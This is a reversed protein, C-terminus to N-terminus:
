RFRQLSSLYGFVTDKGSKGYDGYGQSILEHASEGSLEYSHGVTYMRRNGVRKARSSITRSFRIPVIDHILFWRKALERLRDECKVVSKVHANGEFVVYPADAYGRRGVVPLLNDAIFM